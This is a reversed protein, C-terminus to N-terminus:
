CIFCCSSPSLEQIWEPVFEKNQPWLTVALRSLTKTRLHLPVFRFCQPEKQIIQYCLSPTKLDDPMWEFVRPEVRLLQSFLDCTHYRVPLHQIFFPNYQIAQLYIEHPIAEHQILKVRDCTYTHGDTYLPALVQLELLRNGQDIFRHIQQYSTLVFHPTPIIENLVYTEGVFTLQHDETFTIISYVLSISM